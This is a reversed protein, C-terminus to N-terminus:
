SPPALPVVRVLSVPASGTPWGDPYRGLAIASVWAGERDRSANQSGSERSYTEWVMATVEWGLTVHPRFGAGRHSPEVEDRVCASASCAEAIAHGDHFWRAAVSSRQPERWAWRDVHAAGVLTFTTTATHVLRGVIADFAQSVMDPEGWFRGRLTVHVPFRLATRDKTFPALAEQERRIEAATTSDILAFVAYRALM